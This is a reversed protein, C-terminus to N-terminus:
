NKAKIFDGHILYHAYNDAKAVDEAGNKLNARFRYKIVNGKLFGKFEEPTLMAKIEDICEHDGQVYHKPKYVNDTM